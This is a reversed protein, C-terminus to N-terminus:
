DKNELKEKLKRVEEELTDIKKQAEGIDCFNKMMESMGMCQEFPFSCSTEQSKDKQAEKEM